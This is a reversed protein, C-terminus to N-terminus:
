LLLLMSLAHLMIGILLCVYAAALWRAKRECIAANRKAATLYDAMRQQLLQPLTLAKNDYDTVLDDANFPAEFTRVASTWTAAALSLGLLLIGGAVPYFAPGGTVPHDKLVFVVFGAYLASLSLVANARGDLEKRRAEEDDFLGKALALSQELRLPIGTPM